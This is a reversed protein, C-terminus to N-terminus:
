TPNIIWHVRCCFSIDDISIDQEPVKKNYAVLKIKSTNDSPHIFKTTDLGTKTKIIYKEGYVIGDNNCIKGVLLAQNMILPYMSDGKAKEAYDCGPFINQPLSGVIERKEDNYVEINSLNTFGGIVPIEKDKLKHDLLQRHFPKNEGKNLPINEKENILTDKIKVNFAIEFNKIFQKSVEARGSLYNSVVAASYGTAKIIDVDKKIIRKAKLDEVARVLEINRNNETM